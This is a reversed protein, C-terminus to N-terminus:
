AEQVEDPEVTLGFQGGILTLKKGRFRNKRNSKCQGTIYKRYNTVAFKVLKKEGGKTPSAPRGRRDQKARKKRVTQATRPCRVHDAREHTECARQAYGCGFSGTLGKIRGAGKESTKQRGIWHAEKYLVYNTHPSLFRCPGTM